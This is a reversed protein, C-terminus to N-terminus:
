HEIYDHHEQNVEEHTGSQFDEIIMGHNAQKDEQPHNTKQICVLNTSLCTSCEETKSELSKKGTSITWSEQTEEMSQCLHDTSAKPEEHFEPEKIVELSTSLNKVVTLIQEEQSSSIGAVALIRSLEELSKIMM